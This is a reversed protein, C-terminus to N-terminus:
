ITERRKSVKSKIQEKKRTVQPPLKSSQLKSSKYTEEKRIYTNVQIFKGRSVSKAANMNEDENIEFYKSIEVQKETISKYNLEM